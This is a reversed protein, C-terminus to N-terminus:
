WVYLFARRSDFSRTEINDTKGRVMAHVPAPLSKKFCQPMQTVVAKGNNARTFIYPTLIAKRAYLDM